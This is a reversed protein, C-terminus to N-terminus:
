KAIQELEKLAEQAHTTAPKAHNQRGEDIAAKLHGIAETAHADPKFKNVSEVKELALDAHYALLGADNLKGQTIAEQVHEVAKELRDDAMASGTAFLFAGGLALTLVAIRRNM